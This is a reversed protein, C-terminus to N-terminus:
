ENLNNIEYNIMDNILPNINKNPKWGLEKKAKSSDGLLYVVDLPRFFKKSIEIIIKNKNDLAREKLGKGVWKIPMNLKKCVLNIFEKISYQKESSIVFDDPKKHNLVKYMMKVYDRAHGWDRRSYINGLKLSDKKKNFKIETLAKVIKKTVFQEGRLPSEHNFLIGNSAFMNFSNRYMRVYYYSSLKAISYPSIPNFHSRENLKKQNKENLGYMESSSAQYFKTKKSFQRIAELINIVSQNNIQDTYIPNDYAYTVFSQAALNFFYKPKIKRIIEIIKLHESLDLNIYNIKDKIKLFELRSLPDVSSRRVIGYVKYKKKLLLQALYAGDQGTVGTIIVSPNM